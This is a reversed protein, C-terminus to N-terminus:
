FTYGFNMRVGSFDNNGHTYTVGLRMNSLSSATSRTGFSLAVDTYNDIYLADGFFATHAVDVKYSTLKGLMGFGLPGEVGVGNKTMTNTLDYDISFDGTDLPASQVYTAMNGVSVKLDKFYLDYNSTLTGSYLVAASGMDISGVAGARVAPTLIWDDHVPFRFGLGLSTNFSQSGETEVLAIPFDVIIQKRPDDLTYTYHIPLSYLDQSFDDMAYHGFRFGLGVANGPSRDEKNKPSGGMVSSGMAFSADGMQNMLSTPNGAVPDIPTNQVMYTLMKTLLGDGNKELYTEFAEQSDDRTAGTFTKETVNLSPINLTLTTGNAPYTITAPLGRVNLQLSAASENTYALNIRRVGANDVADILDEISQFSASESVGDVTASIGFLDEAHVPSSLLVCSLLSLVGIKKKNM